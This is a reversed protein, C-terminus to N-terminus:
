SVEKKIFSVVSSNNVFGLEYCSAKGAIESCVGLVYSVAEKEWFVPFSNRFIKTAAETRGSKKLSNVDNQYIFFIGDIKTRDGQGFACKEFLTGAWPTNYFYPEGDEITIVARDDNFVTAGAAEHWFDAITSKGAGSQGMFLYLRNDKYVSSCHILFGIKKHIIYEILFAQFFNAKVGSMIQGAAEQPTKAEEEEGVKPKNTYIVGKTMDKDVVGIREMRGPLSRDPYEFLMKDGASSLSWNDEVNFLLKKGSFDPIFGSKIDFVFDENKTQTYLFGKFEKGKSAEYILNEESCRFRMIKGAIMIKFDIM